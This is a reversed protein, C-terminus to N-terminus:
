PQDFPAEKNDTPVGAPRTWGGTRTEYLINDVYWKFSGAHGSSGPSWLLDYVHWDTTSFDAPELGSDGFTLTQTNLLSGSTGTNFEDSWTLAWPGPVAQATAVPATGILVVAAALMVRKSRIQSSM